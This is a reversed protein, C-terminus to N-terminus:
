VAVSHHLVITNKGDGGRMAERGSERWGTGRAWKSVPYRGSVQILDFGRIQLTQQAFKM